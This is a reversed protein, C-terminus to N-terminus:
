SGEGAAELLYRLFVLRHLAYESRKQRILDIADHVNYGLEMLAFAVVLGSRNYGAQCRVLVRQGLHLRRAIQEALHRVQALEGPALDDDPIPFHIHEVEPNPGYASRGDGAGRVEPGWYMSYVADFESGVAVYEGSTWYDGTVQGGMFLGPVIENWPDKAYPFYKPENDEM